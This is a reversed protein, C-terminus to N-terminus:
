VSANLTMFDQSFGQLSIHATVSVSCADEGNVRLPVSGLVHVIHM